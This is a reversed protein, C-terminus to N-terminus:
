VNIDRHANHASAQHKGQVNYYMHVRLAISFCVHLKM